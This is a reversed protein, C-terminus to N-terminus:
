RETSAADLPERTRARAAAALLRAASQRAPDAEVALQAALVAEIPRNLGLWRSAISELAHVSIQHVRERDAVVWDQQWGPLLVRTFIDTSLDVAAGERLKRAREHLLEVDVRVVPALTAGYSTLTVIGRQKLRWLPRRLRDRGEGRPLGSWLKEALAARSMPRRGQLALAAVILRSTPGLRLPRPGARVGFGGLLRAEVTGGDIM